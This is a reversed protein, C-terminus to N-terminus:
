QHLCRRSVWMRHWGDPHFCLINQISKKKKFLYSYVGEPTKKKESRRELSSTAHRVTNVRAYGVLPLTRQVLPFRLFFPFFSFFFFTFKLKLERMSNDGVIITVALVM